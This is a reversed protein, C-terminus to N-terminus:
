RQRRAVPHAARSSCRHVAVPFAPRTPEPASPSPKPPRFPPPTPPPLDNTLLGPPLLRALKPNPAIVRTRPVFPALTSRPGAGGQFGTGRQGAAPHPTTPPCSRPLFLREKHQLM